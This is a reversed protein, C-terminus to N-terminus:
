QRRKFCAARPPFSFTEETSSVAVFSSLHALSLHPLCSRQHGKAAYTTPDVVLSRNAECLPLLELTEETAEVLKKENM